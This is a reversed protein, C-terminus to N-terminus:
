YHIVFSSHGVGLSRGGERAAMTAQQEDNATPRADNM